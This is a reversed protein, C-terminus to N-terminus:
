HLRYTLGLFGVPGGFRYGRVGLRKGSLVYEGGAQVEFRSGVSFILAADVSPAAYYKIEQSDTTRTNPLAYEHLKERVRYLGMGGGLRLFGPLMLLTEGDVWRLRKTLWGARARFFTTSFHSFQGISREPGRASTDSHKYEGTELAAEWRPAAPRYVAGLTWGNDSHKGRVAPGGLLWFTAKAPAKAAPDSTPPLKQESSVPPQTSAASLPVEEALLLSRPADTKFVSVSALTEPGVEVYHTELMYDTGSTASSVITLGSKRSLHGLLLRDFALTEQERAASPTEARSELISMTRSSAQFDMASVIRSTLTAAYADLQAIGPGDAAGASGALGAALAAGALLRTFM